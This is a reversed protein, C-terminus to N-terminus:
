TVIWVAADPVRVVAEQILDLTGVAAKANPDLEVATRRVRPRKQQVRRNGRLGATVDNAVIPDARIRGPLVYPPVIAVIDGIERIMDEHPEEFPVRPHFCTM